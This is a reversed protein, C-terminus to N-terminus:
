CGLLYAACKRSLEFLAILGFLFDSVIRAAADCVNHFAQSVYTAWCCVVIDRNLCAELISMAVWVECVLKLQCLESM